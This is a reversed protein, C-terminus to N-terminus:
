LRRQLLAGSSLSAIAVMGFVLFDHSAQAKIREAPRYARTVLTSGGVITLSRISGTGRHILQGHIERVIEEPEASTDVKMDCVAITVLRHGLLQETKLLAKAFAM